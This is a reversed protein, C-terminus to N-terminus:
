PHAVWLYFDVDSARDFYEVGSGDLYRKYLYIRFSRLTNGTWTTNNTFPVCAIFYDDDDGTLRAYDVDVFVQYQVTSMQADFVVEAIGTSVASISAIGAGDFSRSAQQDVIGYSLGNWQAHAWLKQIERTDHVGSAHGVRLALELDASASVLKNVYTDSSARLGQHALLPQGFSGPAAQSLEQSHVGLHFSAEEGGTFWSGGAVGLSGNWYTSYITVHTDDVWQGWSLCPLSSGTASANQLFLPGTDKVYRSAALNLTFRGNVAATGPLSADSNFGVSNYKSGDWYITGLTRPILATNHEGTSEIHEARFAAEIAQANLGLQGYGGPTLLDNRIYTPPRRYSM